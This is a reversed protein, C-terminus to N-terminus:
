VSWDPSSRVHIISKVNLTSLNRRRAAEELATDLSADQRQFNQDPKSQVNDTVCDNGCEDIRKEIEEVTKEKTGINAESEKRDNEQLQASMEICRCMDKISLM